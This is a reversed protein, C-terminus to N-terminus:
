KAHTSCMWVPTSYEVTSYFLVLAAVMYKTLLNNKTKLKQSLTAIRYGVDTVGIYKHKTNHLVRQSDFM